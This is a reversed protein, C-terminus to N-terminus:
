KEVGNVASSCWKACKNIDNFHGIRTTKGLVMFSEIWHYLVKETRGVFSCLGIVKYRNIRTMGCHTTEPSM